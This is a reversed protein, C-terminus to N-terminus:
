CVMQYDPQLLLEPLEYSLINEKILSAIRRAIPPPVANGIMKYQQNVPGSFVFSDPFGQIRAAERVTFGRPQEPHLFYRPNGFRTDVTMSCKEWELRKYLGNFADVLDVNEEVRKLFRKEILSQIIEDVPYECREQLALIRVPDADGFTRVRIQRRLKMILLLIERERDTVAGYVEPIEWTHISNAGGRVNCLKQGPKIHQVLSQVKSNNVPYFLDQNPLGELDSLVQRLTKSKEVPLHFNVDKKGKWAILFVRKRLQALGFDPASCKLFNCNYGLSTLQLTLEDWYEKHKGSLSGMVNECVVVKPSIEKAFKGAVLLLSNRPDDLKRNGATSFGQCPSGTVLVDIENPEFKVPLDPKTLDHIYARGILNENFVKVVHPDNDFAAVCNFGNDEFGTDFGGCGSFLSIYKM